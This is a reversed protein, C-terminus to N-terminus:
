DSGGYTYEPPYEQGIFGYIIHYAKAIKTNM